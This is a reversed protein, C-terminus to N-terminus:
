RFYFYTFFTVLLSEGFRGVYSAHSPYPKWTKYHNSSHNDIKRIALINLAEAVTHGQGLTVLMGRARIDIM